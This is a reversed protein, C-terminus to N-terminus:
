LIYQQVKRVINGGGLSYALLPYWCDWQWAQLGAGSTADSTELSRCGAAGIPICILGIAVPRRLAASSYERWRRWDVGARRAIVKFYGDIILPV